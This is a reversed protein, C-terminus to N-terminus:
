EGDGFMSKPGGGPLEVALRGSETEVSLLTLSADRRLLRAALGDVKMGKLFVRVIASEDEGRWLALYAGSVGEVARLSALLAKLRGVDRAGVAMVAAESRGGRARNIEEAAKAAAEEGAQELAKGRAGASSVDVAAGETRFQAVPVADRVEYLDSVLAAHARWAGSERDPEASASAAGVLMWDAGLRAAGAALDKPEAGRAVFANLSDRGDVGTMGRASLARRLADAAPGVGLDLIGQPESVLLLARPERSSFGDPKLLGKKDLAALIKGFRVEVVGRGEKERWKTRATLEAARGGLEAAVAASQTSSPALFLELAGTVADRRADPLTPATVAVAAGDQTLGPNLRGFACGSLLAAVALAM